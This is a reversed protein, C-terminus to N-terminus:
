SWGGRTFTVEDDSVSATAITASDDANRLTQTTSTQTFPQSALAFLWDIKEGLTADAAPVGGPEPRSAVVDAILSDIKAEIGTLESVVAAVRGSSLASPQTGRWHSVNVEPRGGTATAAVGAFARVDARVGNGSNSTWADYVAAPVVLCEEWVPLAGSKAVHVRLPGLTDSDTASLPCSYNGNEMHSCSTSNNKQAFAGAAKSLRVDAQAITLATQATVGDSAAVFPGLVITTATSQRLLKM